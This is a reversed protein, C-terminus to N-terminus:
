FYAANGFKSPEFGEKHAVVDCVIDGIQVCETLAFGSESCRSKFFDVYQLYDM